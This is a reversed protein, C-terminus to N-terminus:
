LYLTEQFFLKGKMSVPRIKVKSAQQADLTNSLIIQKLQENLMDQIVLQLEDM